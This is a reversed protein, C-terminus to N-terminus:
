RRHAHDLREVGFPAALVLRGVHQGERSERQRRAALRGGISPSMTSAARSPRARPPVPLCAARRVMEGMQHHMAEQMKEAVIVLGVVLGLLHFRQLRAHAPSAQCQRDRRTVPISVSRVVIFSLGSVAARGSVPLAFASLRFVSRTRTGSPGLIPRRLRCPKAACSRRKSADSATQEPVLLPTWGARPGRRRAPRSRPRRRRGERGVLPRHEVVDQAQAFHADLVDHHRAGVDLRDLDVGREAVQQVQELLGAMRAHRDIGLREVIGRPMTWMRSTSPWMVVCRRAGLLAAAGALGGGGGREIERLTSRSWSRDAVELRMRVTSKTGGDM